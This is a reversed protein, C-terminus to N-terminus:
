QPPHKNKDKVVRIVLEEPLEQVEIKDGIRFGVDELWKCGPAPYFSNIQSYKLLRLVQYQDVPLM